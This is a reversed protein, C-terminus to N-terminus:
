MGLLRIHDRLRHFSTYCSECYMTMDRSCALFKVSGGVIRRWRGCKACRDTKAKMSPPPHPTTQMSPVIGSKLFGTLGGLRATVGAKPEKKLGVSYIGGRM